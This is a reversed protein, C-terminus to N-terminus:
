SRGTGAGRLLLLVLALFRWCNFWQRSHTLENLM